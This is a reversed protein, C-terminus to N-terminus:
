IRCKPEACWCSIGQEVLNFTRYDATVEAGPAIDTLAYVYLQDEVKANPKCSHNLYDIGDPTETPILYLLTNGVRRLHVSQRWFFDDLGAGKGDAGLDAVCAKGDFFGLFAGAKIPARAYLAHHDPGIQRVELLADDSYSM